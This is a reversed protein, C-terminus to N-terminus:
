DQDEAKMYLSEDVDADPNNAELCIACIVKIGNKAWINQGCEQCSHKVKSPKVKEKPPEKHSEWNLKFGSALLDKCATDFPGNEIVYHTMHRGTAAGGPLGTTSCQLGVRKMLTAFARNHYAKAPPKGFVQHEHHALEHVLTSLITADDRGVFVDPNLAIEPIKYSEGEKRAAFKEPWFYGASKAKRGLTLMVPPLRSEFLKENFFDFAAQLQGYSDKTVQDM